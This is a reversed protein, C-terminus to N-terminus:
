NSNFNSLNIIWGFIVMLVKRSDWLDKSEESCFVSYKNYSCLHPDIEYFGILVKKICSVFRKNGYDVTLPRSTINWGKDIIETLSHEFEVDILDYLRHKNPDLLNNFSEIDNYNQYYIYSIDFKHM